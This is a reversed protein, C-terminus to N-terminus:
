GEVVYRAPQGGGPQAASCVSDASVVDVDFRALRQRGLLQLESRFYCPFACPGWKHLPCSAQLSRKVGDGPQEGGAVAAPVGAVDFTDDASGGLRGSGLAVLVLPPSM